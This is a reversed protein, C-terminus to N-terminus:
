GRVANRIATFNTLGGSHAGPAGIGGRDQLQANMLSPIPEGDPGYGIPQVHTQQGGNAAPATPSSPANGANNNYTSINGDAGGGMASQRRTSKQRKPQPMTGNTSGTKEGIPYMAPSAAGNSGGNLTSESTRSPHRGGMHATFGPQNPLDGAAAPGPAASAVMVAEARELDAPKMGSALMAKRQDRTFGM